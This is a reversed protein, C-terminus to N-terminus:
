DVHVSNGDISPLCVENCALNPVNYLPGSVDGAPADLMGFAELPVDNITLENKSIAKQVFGQKEYKYYDSMGELYEVLWAVTNNHGLTSIARNKKPTADAIAQLEEAKAFLAAVEIGAIM